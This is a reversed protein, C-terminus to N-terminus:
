CEIEQELQALYARAIELGHSHYEADTEFACPCEIVLEDDDYQVTYACTPTM